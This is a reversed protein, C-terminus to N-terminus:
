LNSLDKKEEKYKEISSVLLALVLFIFAANGTSFFSGTSKIPFFETCFIFFLMATRQDFNSKFKFIYNIKFIKYLFYFILISIIFFGFLGTDTLIEIYYNHPHNNCNICNVRFSKVGGGFFIKTKWTKYGTYFERFFPTENVVLSQQLSKTNSTVIEILSKTDKYFMTLNAKFNNNNQYTFIVPLIVVICILFFYKRLNDHLLCILFLSFFFLFFPMRNGSLIIGAVLISIVLTQILIKYYTKKINLIFSLFIVFLSFRQIYGGAILEAGFVGSLRRPTVIEIGFIDHLFFYQYFIDICVFIVFFSGSLYFWNLKLINQSVLFRVSIYLFYYRLYFFTKNIIISSFIKDDLWSQFFNIILVVLIYIFFFNIIKDFINFKLNKLENYYFSFTVLIFIVINLNIMANGIIFSLPFLSFIANVILTKLKNTRVPDTTSNFM